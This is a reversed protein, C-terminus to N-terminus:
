ILADAEEWIEKWVKKAKGRQKKGKAEEYNDMMGEGRVIVLGVMGLVAHPTCVYGYFGPVDMKVEVDKNFKGKWSAAGAPLMGDLSASDHGPHTAKFLVSDGADVVLVRPSFFNRKKPDSPDKTLMEVIHQKGEALSVNPMLLTAAGAASAAIMTRRTILNKM